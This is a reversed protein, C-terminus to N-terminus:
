HLELVESESTLTSHPLTKHPIKQQAKKTKKTIVVNVDFTNFFYGFSLEIMFIFCSTVLGCILIYFIASLQGLKLSSTRSRRDVIKLYKKDTNASMIHEILGASQLDILINNIESHLCSNKKLFMVINMTAISQRCINLYFGKRITKRNRAIIELSSVLLSSKKMSDNLPRDFFFDKESSIIM